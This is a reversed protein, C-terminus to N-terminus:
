QSMQRATEHRGSGSGVASTQVKFTSAFPDPRGQGLGFAPQDKLVQSAHFSLDSELVRTRQRLVVRAPLGRATCRCSAFSDEPAANMALGTLARRRECLLRSAQGQRFQAIHSQAFM